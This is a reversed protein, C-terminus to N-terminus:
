PKGSRRPWYGLLILGALLFALTSPEPIPTPNTTFQINDVFFTWGNVVSNPSNVAVRTIPSAITSGFLFTRFGSPDTNDQVALFTDTNLVSVGSFYQVVYDEAATQGNFLTGKVSTVLQLPDLDLTIKDLLTPDGFDATGYLNPLSGQPAAFAPLFTPNGLAVGGSISFLGPSSYTQMALTGFSSPQTALFPLSEFDVTVSAANALGSLSIAFAVGALRSTTKM